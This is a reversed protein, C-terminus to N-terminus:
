QLKGKSNIRVHLGKSLTNLKKVVRKKSSGKLIRPQYDNCASSGSLSCAIVRADKKSLVKGDKIHFTQQFIMTDKDKPNTNGGFCFNGLSYVIYRGKYREIGQLVHPHHGLVLSAGANIASHALSKQKSNPYYEREIGWHFSTIIIKARKKKAKKIAKTVQSATTGELQSFGIFAIKIGKVKKYAITSNYCYAIKNKKLTRQTDALGKRGFDMSHNNALTVVEVSGKKLIGVYKKPGKFTFAKNARNTSTTLTGEFNVITIDDKSFVPKVKKLFYANGNKTYYSDFTHHIRSDIGLTCDGAASITITSEKSAKKDTATSQKAHTPFCLLGSLLLITITTLFKKMITFRGTLFHLDHHLFLM